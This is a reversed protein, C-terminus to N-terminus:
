IEDEDDEGNENEKNDDGADDDEVDSDMLDREPFDGVTVNKGRLFSGHSPEADFYKVGKATGDGLGVPEDFVVGVWYGGAKMEAVEGVFKVQGRRSGPAVQCRMGVEIGVISEPGPPPDRAPAGEPGTPAGTGLLGGATKSPKWNPNEKKKNKIFERLTGKRADYADDSMKYKEVLSTDTLGGGRSLSFPDTDIIHIEMGSEVSYFGLMKSNDMMECINRGDQRLWLRQHEVATGTHTRLKEKM